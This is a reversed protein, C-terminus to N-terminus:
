VWGQPSVWDLMVDGVRGPELVWILCPVRVGFMVTVLCPSDVHGSGALRWVMLRVMPVCCRTLLKVRLGGVSLPTRQITQIAGPKMSVRPSEGRPDVF